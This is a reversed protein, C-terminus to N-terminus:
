KYCCYGTLCLIILSFGSRERERERKSEMERRLYLHVQVPWVTLKNCVSHTVAEGSEDSVFHRHNVTFTFALDVSDLTFNKATKESM